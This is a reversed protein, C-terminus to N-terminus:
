GVLIRGGIYVLAGAVTVPTIGSAIAALTSRNMADRRTLEHFAVFSCASLLGVLGGGYWEISPFVSGSAAGIGTGLMLAVSINFAM